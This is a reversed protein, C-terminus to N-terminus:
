CRSACPFNWDPVAALYDARTIRAVNSDHEVSEDPLERTGIGPQITENLVSGAAVDGSEAPNLPQNMALVWEFQCTQTEVEV